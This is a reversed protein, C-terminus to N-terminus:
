TKILKFITVKKTNKSVKYHESSRYGALWIIDGNGNVLLPVQTKQHVPIKQDIFYDSLKKRTKMGLPYFYDSQQWARMTLPYVLLDADISVALPNDKVILPSEDHLLTIKYNNYNVMHENPNITIETPHDKKLTIIINERDLILRYGLSEFIRGSHKDLSAILDDVATENFGYPQLLNFLLLRKPELKRVAELPVHIEDDQQILLEKKLESLKLELLTEMDRFHQLNNEFTKELSPNLEKLKPIVEHRIKNRAYKVSLNSSDEVYQLSNQKILLKIDERNLFLLPRVLDGNKTLIGHLGAIGTGRTLNLLITEITDNQHHALAIADYGHQQKLQQFWQYRLDRAAMQISIKHNAAYDTTDFNITYFPVGFQQALNKCFEQDAIADDGRLQFNCHAISFNYGAAKLLHAMLVSDMGGSVAALVKGAPKFLKNQEIFDTFQKVPLM